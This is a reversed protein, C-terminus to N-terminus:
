PNGSCWKKAPAAKEKILVTALSNAAIKALRKIEIMCPSEGVIDDFSFMATAALWGTSWNRVQKIERFIDVVGELKGTEDRLPIATKIFHLVGGSPKLLFSKIRIVRAPELVKLM